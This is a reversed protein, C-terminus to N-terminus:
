ASEVIRYQASPVQSGNRYDYISTIGDKTIVRRGNIKAVETVDALTKEASFTNLTEWELPLDDYKEPNGRYRAQLKMKEIKTATNKM